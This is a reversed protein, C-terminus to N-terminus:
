EHAADLVNEGVLRPRRNLVRVGPRGIWDRIETQFVVAPLLHADHHRQLVVREKAGKGMVTLTMQDLDAKTQEIGLAESIRIGTDLLLLVLTWTRRQARNKPHFRLILKVDADSLLVLQRQPAKLIKVRYVHDIEGEEKLWSLYSNVTRVYMNVCGPTLGEQRMGVVWLELQAKTPIESPLRNLGQRYTRVNRPSWNRLYTGAQLFREFRRNEHFVSRSSM